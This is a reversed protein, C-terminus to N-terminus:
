GDCTVCTSTNLKSGLVVDSMSGVSSQLRSLFNQMTASVSQLQQLDQTIVELEQCGCCPKSCVDTFKLGNTVTDIQLCDSGIFTIDGDPTPGVGNIRRIPPSIANGQCVCPQALGEGQIASIRIQPDQGAVIIPTLQINEDAVLVIDGYMPISVDSGNAVAISSVGRIIPRICDPEIRADTLTFTFFGSPQEDMNVIDGITIKGVTDAFVGVGGAAYITNLVFGDRPVLASAVSVPDGSPPQYGIIVVFGTAYVGINLLMFRAPDVDMGSHIPLDLGILFDSPM